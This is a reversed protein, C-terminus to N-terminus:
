AFVKYPTLMALSGLPISQLGGAVLDERAPNYWAAIMTLMAQRISAPVTAATTGYGATFHVTLANVRGPQPLPWTATPLPLLRGFRAFPGRPADVQYNSSAWTQTAGTYDVYEVSEVSILPPRPIQIAYWLGMDVQADDFRLDWRASILQRGTVAEARERAATILGVILGDESTDSPAKCQRKAEFLSIPDIAPAAVLSLAM